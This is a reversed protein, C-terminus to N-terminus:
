KPWAGELPLYTFYCPITIRVTAINSDTVGDNAHYTFTDIGGFGTTSTYVFSGDAQLDLLGYLPGADLVATLPNGAPNRDNALEGLMTPVELPVDVSICYGDVAELLVAYVYATGQDANAGIAAGSAGVVATDGNVSV